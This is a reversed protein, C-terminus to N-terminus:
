FGAKARKRFVSKVPLTEVKLQIRLSIKAPFVFYGSGRSMGHGTKRLNDPKNM